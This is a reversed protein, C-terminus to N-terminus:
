VGSPLDTRSSNEGHNVAAPRGSPTSNANSSVVFVKKRPAPRCDSYKDVASTLGIYLVFCNNQLEGRPTSLDEFGLFQEEVRAEDCFVPFPMAFRAKSKLRDSSSEKMGKLAENFANVRIHSSAETGPISGSIWPGLLVKPEVVFSPWFVEIEVYEGGDVVQATFDESGVGSPLM